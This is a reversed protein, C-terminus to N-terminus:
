LAGAKDPDKKRNLFARALDQIESFDLPEVEKRTYTETAHEPLGDLFRSPTLKQREGRFQRAEPRTLYLADRARTVGVYFLRREEEVDTPSSETIKPDTTRSHPLQGEVCGILFVVAFELGKAAHLTSLVVGQGAEADQPDGRLTVRELFNQLSRAERAEKNEYRELWTLLYEVNRYRHAGQPGGDAAASLDGRLDVTDFIRRAIQVLSTGKELAATSERLLGLLGAIATRAEAPVAPVEDARSLAQGFSCHQSEAFADLREITKTGIGRAPYNVIRRLSIDDAFNVVARLYGAADKVEKRDFFQTGGYLQYPVAQARLEEELLRAQLNSRYLVAMDDYPRGKEHLERLEGVVLKAEAQADTTVCLRVPVGSGRAARLVKGHRREGSQAIAANAVDLIPSCSRYNDELKVIRTGKFHRDFDLINGVQAGRWGYISQDDDGVVCVNGLENVLLKVLELQVVSTDQFEDVMVHRFRTRWKERVAENERLLRVPALLLDDFDLARMAHLRAVYDPYVDRAIDDYEFDSEPVDAPLLGENKWKSVRAQIAAPDLRRAAGSDRMHRLIDKVVGMSDGQDFIVFRKGLGLTFKEEHVFRVGFSHFTSLVLAESRAKGCLAQMRERMEDAAKNTFSVALIAEPRVGERLLAAIRHTLVRTKGSGAGALILLPGQRHDVAAQQAENLGAM